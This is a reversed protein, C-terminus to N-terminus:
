HNEMLTWIHTSKRDLACKTPQTHPQLLLTPLATHQETSSLSSAWAPASTDHPPVSQHSATIVTSNVSQRMESESIILSITARSLARLPLIYPHLILTTCSFIIIYFIYIRILRFQFILSYNFLTHWGKSWGQVSLSTSLDQPTKSGMHFLNCILCYTAEPPPADFTIFLRQHRKLWRLNPRFVTLKWIVSIQLRTM